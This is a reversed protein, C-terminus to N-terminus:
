FLYPDRLMCSIGSDTGGPKSCGTTEQPSWIKQSECSGKPEFLSGTSPWFAKLLTFTSSTRSCSSNIHTHIYIYVYSRQSVAMGAVCVIFLWGVACLWVRPRPQSSRPLFSAVLAPFSSWFAIPRHPAFENWYKLHSLDETTIVANSSCASRLNNSSMTSMWTKPCPAGTIKKGCPKVLQGMKPINSKNSM